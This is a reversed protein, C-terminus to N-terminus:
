GAGLCLLVLVVVLFVVVAPRNPEYAETPGASSALTAVAPMDPRRWRLLEGDNLTGGASGSRVLHAGSRRSENRTRADDIPVGVIEGARAGGPGSYPGGRGVRM